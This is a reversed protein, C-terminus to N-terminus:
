ATGVAEGQLGSRHAGDVQDRDVLATALLAREAGARQGVHQKTGENEGERSHGGQNEGFVLNGIALAFDDGELM